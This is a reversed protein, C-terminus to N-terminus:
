KIKLILEQKPAINIKDLSFVKEPSLSYQETHYLKLGADLLQLKGKIKNTDFNQFQVPMATSSSNYVYVYTTEGCRVAYIEMGKQLSKVDVIEFKGNGDSIMQDNVKKVIEFYSMMGRNEFFEWWWSMPLVPTPNFLGLWLSRRFDNDMEPAFENFNKSWDWEYGSEGIIYPKNHNKSYAILTSPIGAANKYIHRQNIDINKLDNLGTIDRHSVSTTIIHNYPDTTKLFTSMENHWDTVIEPSIQESPGGNYMANDVENFFEWCAISPSYGYRAVMLRLKNKYQARAAPLSFFESPTRASGGNEINYNSTEWGSGMLGVHSELALMFHIGLSDCLEVLEDIRKLGSENFHSDSDQYRSNNQVKKWDVPLNWYIMWTRFFNGGNSALKKIMYEYNFRKDEHLQKFFRSDDSDRSEWCINMGIGRFIQGTDYQFSWLNNTSLFGRAKSPKANFAMPATAFVIKLDKKLEFKFSYVGKERPTFRAKWLSEKGSSGSEFYCPLVIKKGSPSTLLMDLSIENMDFPDEFTTNLSINWEAKLYQNVEKNLLASHQIQANLFLTFFLSATIFIKHKM